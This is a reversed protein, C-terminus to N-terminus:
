RIALGSLVLTALQDGVEAASLEGDEDFWRPVLQLMGLVGKSAVTPDLDDRFARGDQGDAVLDLFVQEYRQRDADVEHLREPTLVRLDRSYVGVKAIHTETYEVYGVIIERLRDAPEMGANGTAVALLADQVEEVIAVLLDEKSTIHHYLSGKLIGVADAVDQISAGNYGKEFFVRAARDVIVDRRTPRVGPELDSATSAGQEDPPQRPQM